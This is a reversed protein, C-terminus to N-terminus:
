AAGWGGDVPLEVGTVYSAPASCLWAVAEGVEAPQGFRQLATRGIIAGMADPPVAATLPTQIPGPAIANIRVGRTGYELAASRTLGIVGHKSASYAAMHAAGALGWTSATNVIAGATDVIHPLQYKMCLFIGTLNIAVVQNWEAEDIDVVANAPGIGANNHAFDLRGLRAVGEDVAAQVSASNAVDTYVFLAKHGLEEIRAVTDDGDPLVDCVLVDAGRRAFALASGQGIGRAAGTVMAVKGAFEQTIALSETRPLSQSM